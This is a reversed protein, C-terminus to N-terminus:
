LPTAEVSVDGIVRAPNGAAIVYPPVSKTVVSGAGITAGEGIVVGPLIISRAGVWIGAGLVVADTWIFRENVTGHLRWFRQDDKREAYHLSHNRGDSIIVDYGILSDDGISVAEFCDVITGGNLFCNNGITIRSDSLNTILRCHIYSFSGVEIVGGPRRREVGGVLLTGRGCSDTAKVNVRHMGVDRLRRARRRAANLALVLPRSYRASTM